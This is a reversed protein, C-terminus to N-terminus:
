NLELDKVLNDLRKEDSDDRIRRYLLFSVSVALPIGILYPHDFKGEKINYSGAIISILFLGSAFGDCFKMTTYNKLKEYKDNLKKQKENEM